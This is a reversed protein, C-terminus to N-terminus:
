STNSLNCFPLSRKKMRAIYFLRSQLVAASICDGAVKKIVYASGIFFCLCKKKDFQWATESYFSKLSM